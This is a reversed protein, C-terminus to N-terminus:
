KILTMKKTSVFDGSQITYFYIGSSLSAGNFSVSYYGAPKNENVLTMVEKGSMDFIKLSVNGDVPLDFNIKTTPNFPNPYNQSLDFNNPVGINVDNTLEFYEFNGNFDIQKLRYSYTGAALSRDAFTYSQPSTTTGNGSVNGVKTWTENASSREIDFGSNNTETATSWNLTVDRGSVTSVFSSLEVPLLSNYFGLGRLQYPLSVPFSVVGAMSVVYGTFTSGVFDFDTVSFSGAGLYVAGQPEFMPVGSLPVPTTLFTVPDIMELAGDTFHYIMMDDFNYAIIEGFGPGLPFAGHATVAATTISISYLTEPSPGGSGSMGYLIGLDSNYTLSAMNPPLVGIETCIGTLPNVTALHRDGLLTDRIIAYYLLDDSNWTVANAGSVGWGPMTLVKPPGAPIWLVDLYPEITPVAPNFFTNPRVGFVIANADQPLFGILSVSFFLIAAFLNKIGKFRFNTKQFSLSTFNKM